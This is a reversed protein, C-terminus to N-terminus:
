EFMAALEADSIQVPLNKYEEMSRYLKGPPSAGPIWQRLVLGYKGSRKLNHRWNGSENHWESQSRCPRTIAFRSAVVSALPQNRWGSDVLFCESGSPASIGANVRVRLIWRAPLLDRLQRAWVLRGHRTM